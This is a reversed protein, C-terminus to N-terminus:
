VYIVVGVLMDPLEDILDNVLLNELERGIVEVEDCVDAWKMEKDLVKESKDNEQSLLLKELEYMIGNKAWGFCCKKRGTEVWPHPEVLWGLVEALGYNIQDFLLKRKSKSIKNNSYKNELKDFVWPGVPCELSHWIAVIMNEDTSDFGSEKLVDDIYSTQWTANEPFENEETASFSERTYDKDCLMLNAGGDRSEMKLLKLQMRLEHLDACVGEFCESGPSIDETLPAEFVSVPSLHNGEKSNSLNQLCPIPSQLPVLDKVTPEIQQKSDEPDHASSNEVGLMGPSLQVSFEDPSIRSFGKSDHELDLEAEIMLSTCPVGSVLSGKASTITEGIKINSQFKKSTEIGVDNKYHFQPNCNKFKQNKVPSDEKATVNKSMDPIHMPDVKERKVQRDPKVLMEGLKRFEAVSCVEQYRQSTNWRKSLRKKAERSIPLKCPYSSTANRRNSLHFSKRPSIMTEDIESESDDFSSEDGAYGLTMQENSVHKSMRRTIAKAKERSERTSLRSFVGDGRLPDIGSKGATESVHSLERSNRLKELNPKLVVIMTPLIEKEHQGRPQIESSQFSKNSSRPSYSIPSLSGLHERRYRSNCRSTAKMSKSDIPKNKCKESISQRHRPKPFHGQLTDCLEKSYHFKCETSIRKGDMFKHNIFSTRSESLNSKLCEKADSVEYVDKCEPIEKSSEEYSQCEDQDRRMECVGSTTRHKSTIHQRNIHQQPPLGDFGMLKAVVSPSRAKAELEKSMEEALLKKMPLGSVRRSSNRDLECAMSNEKLANRGYFISDLALNHKNEQKHIQQNGKNIVPAKLKKRRFMEM